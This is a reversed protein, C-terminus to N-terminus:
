LHQEIVVGQAGPKAIQKQFQAMLESSKRMLWEESGVFIVCQEPNPNTRSIILLYLCAATLGDFVFRSGEAQAASKQTPHAALHRRLIRETSEVWQYVPELLAEEIRDAAREDYSKKEFYWHTQM